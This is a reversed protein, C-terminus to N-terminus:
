PQAQRLMASMRHPFSYTTILWPQWKSETDPNDFISRREDHLLSMDPMAHKLNFAM